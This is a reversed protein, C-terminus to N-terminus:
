LKMLCSADEDERDTSRPSHGGSTTLGYEPTMAIGVRLKHGITVPSHWQVLM